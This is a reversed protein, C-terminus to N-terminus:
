VTGKQRSAAWRPQWDIGLKALRAKVRPITLWDLGAAAFRKRPGDFVGDACADAVMTDVARELDPREALQLAISLAIWRDLSPDGIAEYLRRARDVIPHTRGDTAAPPRGDAPRGGPPTNTQEHTPSDRSSEGVCQRYTACLHAGKVNQGDNDALRACLRKMIPNAFFDPAVDANAPTWRPRMLLHAPAGEPADGGAQIHAGGVNPVPLAATHHAAEDNKGRAAGQIHADDGNAGPPWLLKIRSYGGRGRRAEYRAYAAKALEAAARGVSQRCNLSLRGAVQSARLDIPEGIRGDVSALWLWLVIAAHSVGDALM